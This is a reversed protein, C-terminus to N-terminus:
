VFHLGQKRQRFGWVIAHTLACLYFHLAHNRQSGSWASWHHLAQGCCLIFKQVNLNGQDSIPEKHAIDTINGVYRTGNNKDWSMLMASEFALEALELILARENESYM